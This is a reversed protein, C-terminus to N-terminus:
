VSYLRMRLCHIGPGKGFARPILSCEMNTPTHKQPATYKV